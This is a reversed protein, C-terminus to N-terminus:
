TQHYTIAGDFYFGEKANADDSTDPTPFIEGSTEKNFNDSKTYYIRPANYFTNKAIAESSGFGFLKAMKAVDTFVFRSTFTLELDATAIANATQMYALSSIYVQGIFRKNEIGFEVSLPVRREYYLQLDYVTRRILRDAAKDIFYLKDITKLLEKQEDTFLYAVNFSDAEIVKVEAVIGTEGFEIFSDIQDNAIVQTSGSTNIKSFHNPDDEISTIGSFTAIETRGGDWLSQFVSTSITGGLLVPVLTRFTKFDKNNAELLDTNFTITSDSAFAIPIRDRSTKSGQSRQIDPGVYLRLEDGVLIQEQGIAPM